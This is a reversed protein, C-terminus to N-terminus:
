TSRSSSLAYSVVMGALGAGVGVSITGIMPVDIGILSGKIFGFVAPIAALILIYNKYLDRSLRRTRRRHDAM